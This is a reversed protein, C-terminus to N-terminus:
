WPSACSEEQGSPTTSANLSWDYALTSGFDVGDVGGERYQEVFAEVSGHSGAFDDAFWSFIQSVGDPGAGRTPDALFSRAQDDLQASVRSARFAGPPISPCSTSACNLGMHIRGDVPRDEWLAAHWAEAQQRLADDAYPQDAFGRIVGHELDNPTLLFDGVQIFPTTFVLFGDSEVDYAPDQAWAAAVAYLVWANYANLWFALREEHSVLADPDVGSLAVLTDELALAAEASSALHDYDVRRVPGGPGEEEVTEMRLLADWAYFRLTEQSGLDASSLSSSLGAAPAGEPLCVWDGCGVLLALLSLM